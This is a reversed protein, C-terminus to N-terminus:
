LNSFPSFTSLSRLKRLENTHIGCIFLQTAWQGANNADLGHIVLLKAMPFIQTQWIEWTETFGSSILKTDCSQYIPNNKDMTFLWDMKDILNKQKQNM